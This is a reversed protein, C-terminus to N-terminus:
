AIERHVTYMTRIHLTNTMHRDYVYPELQSFDIALGPYALLYMNYYIASNFKYLLFASYYKSYYFTM